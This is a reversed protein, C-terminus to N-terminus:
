HPFLNRIKSERYQFIAKVKRRVLMLDILKGIIGLPLRYTLIDKMEVGSETNRFHHEHHWIRYPGIRQEDIFLIHEQMVTIETLWNMRMGKIPTVRYAIMMGPYMKGTVHTMMRFNMSPPTIRQLNEPSSFFDWVVTISGPIFSEFELRTM